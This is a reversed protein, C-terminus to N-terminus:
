FQMKLQWYNKSDRLLDRKKQQKMKRLKMKNKRKM